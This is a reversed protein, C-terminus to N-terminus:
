KGKPRIGYEVPSAKLSRYQNQSAIWLVIASIATNLWPEVVSLGEWNMLMQALVPLGGAILLTILFKLQSPLNHWLPINELVQAVLLGVLYSAGPGTAIWLLIASVTYEPPGEQLSPAALASATAFLSGILVFLIVVM